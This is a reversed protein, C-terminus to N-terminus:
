IMKGLFSTRIAGCLSSGPNGGDVQTGVLGREQGNLNLKQAIKNIIQGSNVFIFLLLGPPSLPEAHPFFPEAFENPM